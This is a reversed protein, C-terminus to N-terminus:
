VPFVLSRLDIQTPEDLLSSIIGGHL